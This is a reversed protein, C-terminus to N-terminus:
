SAFEAAFDTKITTLTRAEDHLLSRAVRRVRAKDNEDTIYEVPSKGDIRALMLGPLIRAIRQAIDAAPEFTIAGLYAETLADACAVFNKGAAPVWVCKLYLHNLCFAIDFAPEGYWACEADLLIPSRAGVLINKPSLDGHVLARKNALIDRGIARLTEALDAHRMATAYLYPDVRLSLFAEDTAFRQAIADSYATANHIRAAIQGVASAVAPDARGERLERKWLPYIDPPYYTMAFMNLKDDSALVQPVAEPVICRAENLWDVESQNRSLPAMWTQAVRLQPVARKVVFDRDGSTVHWIDASVGGTLPQLAIDKTGLGTTDLGARQLFQLVDDNDRASDAM